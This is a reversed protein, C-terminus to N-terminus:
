RYLMTCHPNAQKFIIGDHPFRENSTKREFPVLYFPPLSAVLRKAAQGFAIALDIQDDAIDPQGIHAALRDELFAGLHARRGKKEHGSIRVDILGHAQHSAARDIEDGVRGLAEADEM